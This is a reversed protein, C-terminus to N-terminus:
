VAQFLAMSLIVSHDSLYLLSLLNTPSECSNLPCWLVSFQTSRLSTHTCPYRAPICTCTHAQTPTCAAPQLRSHKVPLKRPFPPARFRLDLSLYSKPTSLSTWVSPITTYIGVHTHFLFQSFRLVLLLKM